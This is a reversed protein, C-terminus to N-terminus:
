QVFFYPIGFKGVRVWVTVTEGIQHRDYVGKRVETDAPQSRPGWASLSLYYSTHKGTAIHKGMVKAHFATAPSTALIGNLDVTAGYGYILCFVSCLIAPGVSRRMEKAFSLALLIFSVSFVAWTGWFHSWELVHWDLIARLALCLGPMLFAQGVNPFGSNRKSDFKVIGEFRQIVFLAAMPLALLTLIAINYPQPWIFAWLYVAFSIGNLIRCWQRAQKLRAAKEEPTSGPAQNQYIELLDKQYEVQDLNTLNENLWKLLEVQRELCLEIRMKRHNQEKPILLLTRVYQTPIIKFGEIDELALQANKFLTIKLIRDPLIEIRTKTLYGLLAYLLFFGTGLGGLLISFGAVSGHGVAVFYYVSLGPLILSGPTLLLFM